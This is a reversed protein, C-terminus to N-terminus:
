SQELKRELAELFQLAAGVADQVLVDHSTPDGDAQRQTAYVTAARSEAVLYQQTAARLVGLDRSGTMPDLADVVREAAADPGGADNHILVYAFDYFDKALQRHHLAAAKALLYGGLGAFPVRVADGDDHLTRVVTQRLAAGPGAMNLASVDRCGPLSVEQSGVDLVECLLELKVPTGDVDIRWQWRNADNWPTAGVTVLALELWSFDQEDREYVVALRVVLDVDVTGQHPPDQGPALLEPNLGGVVVLDATHSGAHRLFRALGQEARARASPSRVEEEAAM